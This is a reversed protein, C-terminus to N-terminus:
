AGRGSSRSVPSTATRSFPDSEKEREVEADTLLGQRKLKALRELAEIQELDM